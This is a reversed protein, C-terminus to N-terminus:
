PGTAPKSPGQTTAPPQITAPPVPSVSKPTAAEASLRSLISSVYDKTEPIDPIGGSQDVREAGANYASLALRTDGGYKELLTKLLKAGASVNQAPDFVDEVHYEDATAPMLQMLGLAGRVSEACPKFGSEQEMVARILEPKVGQETAATNVLKDVQSGPLPDCDAPAAALLAAFSPPQPWEVTFFSTKAATGAPPNVSNASAAPTNASTSTAAPVGTQHRVSEKQKEISAQMASRIAEPDQGCLGGCVALLGVAATLM